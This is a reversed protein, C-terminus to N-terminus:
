GVTTLRWRTRVTDSTTATRSAPQLPNTPESSGVVSAVVVAGVDVSTEVGVPVAVVPEDVVV